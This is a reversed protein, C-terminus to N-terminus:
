TPEVDELMLRRLRRQKRVLENRKRHHKTNGTKNLVVTMILIGGCADKARMEYRVYDRVFNCYWKGNSLYPQGEKWWMVLAMRIHEPKM